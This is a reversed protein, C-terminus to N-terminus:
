ENLDFDACHAQHFTEIGVAFDVWEEHPIEIQQGTRSDTIVMLDRDPSWSEAFELALHDNVQIGAGSRHYKFWQCSMGATFALAVIALALLPTLALRDSPSSAIPPALVVLWYATYVLLFVAARAAFRVAPYAVSIVLGRQGWRYGSFFLRGATIISIAIVGVVLWEIWCGISGSGAFVLTSILGHMAVLIQALQRLPPEAVSAGSAVSQASHTVIALGIAVLVPRAALRGMELLVGVVDVEDQAQEDM